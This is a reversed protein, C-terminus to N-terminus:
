QIRRAEETMHHFWDDEESTRIYTERKFYEVKSSRLETVLEDRVYEILNNEIHFSAETNLQLAQDDKKLEGQLLVKIPWTSSLWLSEYQDYISNYNFYVENIADSKGPREMTYNCRVFQEDLDYECTLRGNLLRSSDTGPRYTQTVDWEGILFELDQTSSQTQGLASNITCLILWGLRLVKKIGNM